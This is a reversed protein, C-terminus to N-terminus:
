IPRVGYATMEPTLLTLDKVFVSHINVYATADAEENKGKLIQTKKLNSLKFFIGCISKRRGRFIM